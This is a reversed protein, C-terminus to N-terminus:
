RRELLMDRAHMWPRPRECELGAPAARGSSRARVRRARGDADGTVTPPANLPREWRGCKNMRLVGNEYQRQPPCGSELFETKCGNDTSQTRFQRRISVETNVVQIGFIATVPPAKPIM